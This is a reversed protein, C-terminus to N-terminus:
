LRDDNGIKDWKRTLERRGQREVGLYGLVSLSEAAAASAASAVSLICVRYRREEAVVRRNHNSRASVVPVYNGVCKM